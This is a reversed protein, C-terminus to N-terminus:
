GDTRQLGFLLREEHTAALDEERGAEGAVTGIAFAHFKESWREGPGIPDIAAGLAEGANQKVAECAWDGDAAFAVVDGFHLGDHRREGREAIVVDGGDQGVDAALPAVGGVGDRGGFDVVEADFGLAAGDGPGLGFESREGGRLLFEPPVTLNLARRANNDLRM